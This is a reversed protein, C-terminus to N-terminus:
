AAERARGFARRFDDLPSDLLALVREIHLPRRRFLARRAAVTRPLLGLFAFFARVHPWFPRQQIVPNLWPWLLMVPGWPLLRRLPMTKFFVILANRATYFTKTASVRDATASGLHHVVAAPEYWCRFGALQARLGLDVDEFWAFFTEDFTGVADFLARRYAAAGACASLVERAASFRPGDPEGKGFNWAVLSMTDGASDIVGPRKADLMKSAVSGADPRADLAAVLAALWGPEALVDNNMCVVIEGAAAAIGRNTAAAFGLNRPLPVVRVAAFDRALRERTGDTSGNDVVIIEFDTFSQAALSALAQALLDAANWTPIVVSVRPTM